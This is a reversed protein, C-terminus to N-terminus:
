KEPKKETSVDLGIARSPVRQRRIAEEPHCVGDQLDNKKSMIMELATKMRLTPVSAPIDRQWLAAVWWAGM